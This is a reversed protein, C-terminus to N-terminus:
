AAERVVRPFTIAVRTGVNGPGADSTVTLRGALQEVLSRVLSWGLSGARVEIGEPDFGPGDDAVVLELTAADLPRLHVRLTGDTRDHFAHKLANSILENLILGCPMAQDIGLQAERAEIELRLAGVNRGYSHLLHRTLSEVYTQLGLAGLSPAEYLQEHILAICRVRSQSEALVTSAAPDRVAGAQLELLSSVVQLNNKVRHHVESVLLEKEAVLARLRAEAAAREALHNAVLRSTSRVALLGAFAAMGFAFVSTAVLLSETTRMRELLASGQLGIERNLHVTIGDALGLGLALALFIALLRRRLRGTLTLVESRVGEAGPSATALQGPAPRTNPEL